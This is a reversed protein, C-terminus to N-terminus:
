ETNSIRSDLISKTLFIWKSITSKEKRNGEIRGPHSATVGQGPKNSRRKKYTRQDTLDTCITRESHVGWVGCVHHDDAKGTTQSVNSLTRM